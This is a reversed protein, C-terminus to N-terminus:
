GRHPTKGIVVLLGEITTIAMLTTMVVFLKSRMGPDSVRKSSWIFKLISTNLLSRKHMEKLIPKLGESPYRKKALHIKGGLVRRLKICIPWFSSRRPHKIIVSKAYAMKEGRAIARQGWERDGSSLLSDDFPGVRDFVTKLAILNATMAFKQNLVVEEHDVMDFMADEIIEYLNPGRDSPDMFEIRGGIASINSDDLYQVANLLWDRDPICDSDTFAIFKGQAQQLGRNRASYSGPRSESLWIVDPFQEKVSLHNPNSGNDVVIVEYRSRDISQNELANLCITLPGSNNRTPVIVSIEIM